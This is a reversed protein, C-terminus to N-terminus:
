ARLLPGTRDDKQSSPKPRWSPTPIASTCGSATQRRRRPRPPRGGAAEVAATLSFPGEPGDATIAPKCIHVGVYVLPATEGPDKFRVVGDDLFVDGSDHFGLSGATSALMLCVDM